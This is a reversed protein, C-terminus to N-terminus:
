GLARLLVEVQEESRDRGSSEEHRLLFGPLERLLSPALACLPVEDRGVSEAIPDACEAELDDVGGVTELEARDVSPTNSRRIDLRDEIRLRRVLEGNVPDHLSPRLVREAPDRRESAV